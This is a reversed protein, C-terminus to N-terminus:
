FEVTHKSIYSLILPFNDLGLIEWSPKIMHGICTRRIEVYPCAFPRPQLWLSPISRLYNICCGINEMCWLLLCFSIYIDKCCLFDISQIKLRYISFVNRKDCFLSTRELPKRLWAEFDFKSNWVIWSIKDWQNVMFLQRM